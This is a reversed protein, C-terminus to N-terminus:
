PLNSTSVAPHLRISGREGASTRSARSYIATQLVLFPNCTLRPKRISRSDPHASSINTIASLFSDSFRPAAEYRTERRRHSTKDRVQVSDRRLSKNEDAILLPTRKTEQYNNIPTKKHVASLM